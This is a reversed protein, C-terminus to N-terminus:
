EEERWGMSQGVDATKRIHMTGRGKAGNGNGGLAPIGAMPECLGKLSCLEPSYM